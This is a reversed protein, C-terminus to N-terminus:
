SPHSLLFLGPLCKRGYCPLINEVRWENSTITDTVLRTNIKKKLAIIIFCLFFAICVKFVFTNKYVNKCTINM